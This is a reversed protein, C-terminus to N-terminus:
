PTTASFISPAVSPRTCDRDDLVEDILTRADVKERDGWAGEIMEREGTTLHWSLPPAFDHRDVCPAYVFSHVCIRDRYIAHLDVLQSVASRTQGPGRVKFLTTLPVAVQSPPLRDILGPAATGTCEDRESFPVIQVFSIRLAQTDQGGLLQQAWEGASQVGTNDVYGGDVLYNRADAPACEDCRAAPSVLPFTASMRIATALDLDPVVNTAAYEPRRPAHDDASIVAAQFLSEANATPVTPVTTGLIVREGSSMSTSNFMLGPMRGAAAAAALSGLSPPEPLDSGAWSSRWANQLAAGRDFGIRFPLMDITVWTAVVPDLSSASAAAFATPAGDATGSSSESASPRLMTLVFPAIGVSGGSVGSLAVIRGLFAARAEPGRAAAAEQLGDLVRATWAAAQIGGGAAAVIVVRGRPSPGLRRRVVDDPALVRAGGGPRVQYVYSSGGVLLIPLALLTLIPVRYYDFFFTAGSLAWTMVMLLLYLSCLAPVRIWSQLSPVCAWAGVALLVLSGLFLLVAARVHRRLADDPGDDDKRAGYGTSAFRTAFRTALLDVLRRVFGIEEIPHSAGFRVVARLVSGVALLAITAAVVVAVYPPQAGDLSAALSALIALLAPVTLAALRFGHPFGGWPRGGTDTPLALRQPVFDHIIAACQHVAALAVGLALYACAFTLLTRLFWEGSSTNPTLATLDFLGRLLSSGPASPLLAPVPLYALVLMALLPVRLPGIEDLMKM